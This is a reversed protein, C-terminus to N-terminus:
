FFRVEITRGDMRTRDLLEPFKILSFLTQIQQNESLFECMIILLIRIARDAEWDNAFRVLATEKSKMEVFQIDGCSSFKDRLMKWSMTSPLQLVFLFNLFLHSLASLRCVNNVVVTDSIFKRPEEQRSQSNDRRQSGNNVTSYLAGGAPRNNFDDRYEGESKIDYNSRASSNDFDRNAASTYERNGGGPGHYMNQNDRNFTHMGVNGQGVNSGSMNGGGMNNGTLANLASPNLSNGVLSSNLNALGLESLNGALFQNPVGTLGQLAASASALGALAPTNVVNSLAAAATGLNPLAPNPVAGLIGAGSNGGGGSNIDSVNNSTSPLHRSVDRLPEGNVGLGMGVSKLGEPLRLPGESHDIRDMRVTMPRDYLMQNHFMSIAQVSEVPHDYDIVAFGRSNGEKDRYLEVDTVKGAM